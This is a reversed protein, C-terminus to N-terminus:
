GSRWKLNNINKRFILILNLIKIVKEDNLAGSATNDITYKHRKNLKLANEPTDPIIFRLLYKM